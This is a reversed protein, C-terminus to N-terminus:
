LERLEHRLERAVVGPDDAGVQNSQLVVRQHSCEVDLGLRHDGVGVAFLYTLWRNVCTAFKCVVILRWRCTPNAPVMGTFKCAIASSRPVITCERRDRPALRLPGWSMEKQDPSSPRPQRRAPQRRWRASGPLNTQRGGSAACTM